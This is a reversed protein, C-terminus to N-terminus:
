LEATKLAEFREQSRELLCFALDQCLLVTVVQKKPELAKETIDVLTRLAKAARGRTANAIEGFAQLHLTQQPFFPSNQGTLM